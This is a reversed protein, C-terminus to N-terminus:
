QGSGTPNEILTAAQFPHSHGDDTSTVAELYHVHRNGVPVVGGTYGSFTHYHDDSYDTNFVVQHVHDNTGTPIVEGTVTCFRHQHPNNEEATMVSGQLEHVHYQYQGEPYQQQSQQDTYGERFYM